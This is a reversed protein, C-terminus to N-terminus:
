ESLLAWADDLREADADAEADADPLSLARAYDIASGLDAPRNRASKLRANEERLLMVKAKLEVDDGAM